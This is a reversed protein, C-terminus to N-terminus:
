HPWPAGASPSRPACPRAAGHPALARASPTCCGWSGFASGSRGSASSSSSPPAPNSSCASGCCEPM